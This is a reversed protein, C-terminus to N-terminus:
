GVILFVVVGLLVDRKFSTIEPGSMNETKVSGAVEAIKKKKKVSCIYKDAADDDPTAFRESLIKQPM